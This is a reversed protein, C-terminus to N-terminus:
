RGKMQAIELYQSLWSKAQPNHQIIGANICNGVIAPTIIGYFQRQLDLAIYSKSQDCTARTTWPPTAPLSCSCFGRSSQAFSQFLEVWRPPAWPPPPRAWPSLSVIHPMIAIWCCKTEDIRTKMTNTLSCKQIVAANFALSGPSHQPSHLTPPTPSPPPHLFDTTPQSGERRGRWVWRRRAVSVAAIISRRSDIGCCSTSQRYCLVSNIYYAEQVAQDLKYKAKKSCFM